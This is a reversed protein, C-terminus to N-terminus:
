TLLLGSNGRTETNTKALNSLINKTTPTQRNCQSCTLGGRPKLLDNERDLLTILDQKAGRTQEVLSQPIARDVARLTLRDGDRKLVAGRSRLERLLIQQASVSM